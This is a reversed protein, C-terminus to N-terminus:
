KGLALNSPTTEIAPTTSSKLAAEIALVSIPWLAPDLTVSRPKARVNSAGVQARASAKRAKILEVIDKPYSIEIESKMAEIYTETEFKGFEM